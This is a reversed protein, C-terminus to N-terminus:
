KDRLEKKLSEKVMDDIFYQFYGSGLVIAFFIAIAAFGLIIGTIVRECFEIFKEKKEYYALKADEVAKSNSNQTTKRRTTTTM